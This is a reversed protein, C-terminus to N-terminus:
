YSTTSKRLWTNLDSKTRLMLGIENGVVAM